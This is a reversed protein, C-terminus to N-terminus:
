INPVFLLFSVKIKLSLVYNHTVSCNPFGYSLRKTFLNMLRKISRYSTKSIVESINFCFYSLTYVRCNLYSARIVLLSIELHYIVYVYWM